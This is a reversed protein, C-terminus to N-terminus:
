RYEIFLPQRDFRDPSNWQDAPQRHGLFDQSPQLPAVVPTTRLYAPSSAPVVDLPSSVTPGFSYNMSVYMILCAAVVAFAPAFGFSPRLVVPEAAPQLQARVRPWVSPIEPDSTSADYVQLVAVSDRMRRWHDRCDPCRSVHRQLEAEAAQVLDKGVSLAIQRKAQKCRM